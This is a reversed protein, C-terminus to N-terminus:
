FDFGRQLPTHHAMYASLIGANIHHQFLYEDFSKVIHLLNIARMDSFSLDSIINEILVEAEKFTETSLTKEHVIEDIILRSHEYVKQYRENIESTNNKPVIYYVYNGYTKIYKEIDQVSLVTHDDCIKKGQESYLSYAFSQDPTVFNLDVKIMENM